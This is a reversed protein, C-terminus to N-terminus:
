HGCSSHAFQAPQIGIAVHLARHVLAGWGVEGRIPVSDPPPSCEAHDVRYLGPGEKVFYV